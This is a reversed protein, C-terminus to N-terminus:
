DIYLIGLSAWPNAIEDHTIDFTKFEKKLVEWDEDVWCNQIHHHHSPLIDHFAVIGGSKVLKSFMRFDQLAEGRDHGGDIFLFDVQKYDLLERIKLFTEETHSNGIYYNLNPKEIQLQPYTAGIYDLNISLVNEAISSWGFSSGGACSGIELVNKINGEFHKDLFQFLEKFESEKQEIRFRKCGTWIKEWKEESIM